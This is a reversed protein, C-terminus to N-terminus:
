LYFYNSIKRLEKRKRKEKVVTSDAMYPGPVLFYIFLLFCFIFSQPNGYLHFWKLKDLCDNNVKLYFKALRILYEDLLRYMGQISENTLSPQLDHLTGIDISRIKESLEKYPIYNPIESKRDDAIKNAKRISIHKAKGMVNHSYYTNLSRLINEESKEFSESWEKLVKTKIHKVVPKNLNIM